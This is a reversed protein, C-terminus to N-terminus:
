KLARARAGDPHRLVAEHTWASSDTEAPSVSRLYKKVGAAEIGLDPMFREPHDAMLQQAQEYYDPRGIDLWL